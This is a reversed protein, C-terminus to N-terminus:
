DCKEGHIESAPTAPDFYVYQIAPNSVAPAPPAANGGTAYQAQGTSAFAAIALSAALLTLGFHPTTVM